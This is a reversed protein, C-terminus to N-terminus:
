EAFQPQRSRALLRVVAVAGVVIMLRALERVWTALATPTLLSALFGARSRPDIVIEDFWQVDAHFFRDSLPSLFRAGSPPIQDVTVFDV